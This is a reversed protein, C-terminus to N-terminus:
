EDEGARGSRGCHHGEAGERARQTSAADQESLRAFNDLSRRFLWRLCPRVLLSAGLEGVVRLPPDVDEWWVVRTGRLTPVLEFAGEGTVLSGVHRVALRQPEDWATVELVDEFRIGLVNTPVRLRVGVGTRVESAVEVDQADVMWEVQREWDVLLGWVISPPANVERAVEVRM